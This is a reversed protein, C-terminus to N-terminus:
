FPIEDNEARIQKMLEKHETMKIAVRGVVLQFQVLLQLLDDAEIRDVIDPDKVLLTLTLKKM